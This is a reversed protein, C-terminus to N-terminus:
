LAIKHITFTLEQIDGAAEHIRSNTYYLENDYISFTDAWKVNEGELVVSINGEQTRKMIKHNELDAYYLNANYDFIMGDPAATKQVLEVADEIEKPTGENLIELPIAYLNYGTLAHYYLKQHKGDLAIGDSHVSNNWAKNDITLHDVEALTSMHNDLIRKSTNTLVDVVVLGAHGSDTLYIKKRKGDIRLDNIYSDKHYSDSELKLIKHLVGTKTDFVVLRPADIVGQFLPNRTDLVYLFDQDAVVSQVAVFVSDSVEAGIEWANWKENPFASYSKDTHVKIVSNTVGKRWRPFNAYM